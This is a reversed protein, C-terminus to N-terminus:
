ARANSQGLAALGEIEVLLDSRCLDARIMEVNVGAGFADHVAAEVAARDRGRPYYARVDTFARLDSGDDASGVLSRLNAM